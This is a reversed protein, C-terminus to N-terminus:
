MKPYSKKASLKGEGSYFLPKSRQKSKLFQYREKYKLYKDYATCWTEWSEHNGLEPKYREEFKSVFISELYKIKENADNLNRTKNHLKVKIFNLVLGINNYKYQLSKDWARYANDYAKIKYYKHGLETWMRHEYPYKTKLSEYTSLALSDLGVKSELDSRLWIKSSNYYNPFIYEPRLNSIKLSAEYYKENFTLRNIETVNQLRQTLLISWIIGIILLVLAIVFSYKLTIIQKAKTNLEIMACAITFIFLHPLAIGRPVYIVGYFSALLLFAFVVTSTSSIIIDRSKIIWLISLILIYSLSAIGVIGLESITEFFINHAHPYIGIPSEMTYYQLYQTEWNGAGIGFPLNDTFLRISNYWMGLREDNSENNFSIQPNYQYMYNGFDGIGLYAIFGFLLFIAALGLIIKKWNSRHHFLLIVAIVLLALSSARSNFILIMITALSYMCLKLATIKKYYQGGQISIIMLLILLSTIYNGNAGFFRYCQVIDEYTILRWDGSNYCTNAIFAIIFALNIVISLDVISIFKKGEIQDFDVCLTAIFVGLYFLWVIAKHWIFDTEYAWFYSVLHLISFLLFCIGFLSLSIGSKRKNLLIVGVIGSITAGSYIQLETLFTNKFPNLVCILLFAIAILYQGIIQKNLASMM